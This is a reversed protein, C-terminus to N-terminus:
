PSRRLTPRFLLIESLFVPFSCFKERGTEFALIDLEALSGNFL